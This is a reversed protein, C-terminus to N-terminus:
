RYLFSWDVCGTSMLFSIAEYYVCQEYHNWLLGHWAHICVEPLLLVALSLFTSSLLGTWHGCGSSHCRDPSHFRVGANESGDVVRSWSCSFCSSLWMCLSLFSLSLSYPRRQRRLPYLQLGRHLRRASLQQRPSLPRRLGASDFLARLSRFGLMARPTLMPLGLDLSPKNGSLLDVMISGCAM